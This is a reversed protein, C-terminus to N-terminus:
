DLSWVATVRVVLRETGPEVPVAAHPAAAAEDPFPGPGPSTARGERLAQLAGLERGALRAYQEAKDRADAFARERADALLEDDDEVDFRVGRLRAADGGADVAAQLVQGAGDVDRIRVDLRNEAVYPREEPAPAAGPEPPREPRARRVTVDETQIDEAAVGADQLAATVAEARESATEMAAQVSDDTVEVGITARLVDPRGTVEGVGTVTIGDGGSTGDPPDQAAGRAAGQAVPAQEAGGTPSTGATGSGGTDCGALLLGAILVASTTRATKM